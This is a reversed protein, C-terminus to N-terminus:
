LDIQEFFNLLWKRGFDDNMHGTDSDPHIEDDNRVGISLRKSGKSFEPLTFRGNAITQNPQPIMQANIKSYGLKNICDLGFNYEAPSTDNLKGKLAPLPNHGVFIKKDSVERIKLLTKYSLTNKLHDNVACYIVAASYPKYPNLIFRKAGLGYVLYADYNQPYISSAGCSTFELAKELRASGAKLVNNEVILDKLGNGRDGFFTLEIANCQQWENNDWARKLAGIHSNGIICIKM